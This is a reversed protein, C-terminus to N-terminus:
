VAGFLAEALWVSLKHVAHVAPTVTHGAQIASIPLLISLLYIVGIFPWGILHSRLAHWSVLLIAPINLLAAALIGPAYTGFATQWYVHQLANGFVVISFFPLVFLATARPTRLLCGVGTWLFGFLSAGVLLARAALDRFRDVTQSV